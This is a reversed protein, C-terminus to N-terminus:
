QKQYEQVTVWAVQQLYGAEEDSLAWGAPLAWLRAEPSDVPM